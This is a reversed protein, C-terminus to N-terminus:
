LGIHRAAQAPRPHSDVPCGTRGNSRKVARPGIRGFVAWVASGSGTMQAGYAGEALCTWWKQHRIGVRWRAMLDNALAGRRRGALGVDRGEPAECGRPGTRMWGDTPDAAGFSPKIVIVGDASTTWRTSTRAGGTAVAYRGAPFHSTRSSPPPWADWSADPNKAAWLTNLGV